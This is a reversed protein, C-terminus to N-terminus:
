RRDHVLRIYNEESKTEAYSNGENSYGAKFFVFLAFSPDPALSDATWYADPRTDPFYRTDIAVQGTSDKKLLSQMRVFPGSDRVLLTLLEDRTPLRWGNAFGCRAERNAAKAYDGRAYDWNGKGTEISWVLNTKTDRTCAWNGAEKGPKPQAPCAGKGALEGSMCVPVFPDEAAHVTMTALLASIMFVRRM